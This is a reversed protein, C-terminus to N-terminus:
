ELTPILGETRIKDIVQKVKEPQQRAKSIINGKGFEVLMNETGLSILSRHTKILVTGKRVQPAPVEELLTDGKKLDQIIQFM